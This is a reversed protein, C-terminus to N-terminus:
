TSATNRVLRPSVSFLDTSRQTVPHQIAIGVEEKYTEAKYQHELISM